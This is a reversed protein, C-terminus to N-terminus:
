GSKGTFIFPHFVMDCPSLPFNEGMLWKDSGMNNTNLFQRQKSVNNNNSKLQLNFLLAHRLILLSEDTTPFLPFLFGKLVYSTALITYSANSYGM